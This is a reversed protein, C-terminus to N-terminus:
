RALGCLHRSSRYLDEIIKVLTTLWAIRNPRASLLALCRDLIYGTGVVLSPVHLRRLVSVMCFHADYQSFNNRLVLFIATCACGLSGPRHAHAYLDICGSTFSRWNRSGATPKAFISPYINTTSNTVCCSAAFRYQRNGNNLTCLERTPEFITYHM